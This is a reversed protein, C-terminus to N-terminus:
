VAECQRTKSNFVVFKLCFANNSSIKEGHVMEEGQGVGARM